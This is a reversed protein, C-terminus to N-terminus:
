DNTVACWLADELINEHGPCVVIPHLYDLLVPRDMYIPVAGDFALDQRSGNARELLMYFTKPHAKARWYEFQM